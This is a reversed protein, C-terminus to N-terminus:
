DSKRGTTAWIQLDDVATGVTSATPFEMVIAMANMGAFFDTMTFDVSGDDNAMDITSNFGNLDFFFPDDRLGAYGSVLGADLVTDVAGEIDGTSGPVNKMQVGWAGANNQGFRVEIDIESGNELDGDNDIHVMYLVDEDYVPSGGGAILGNYTLAVVISDATHWAYLDAIDAAPDAMTGPAEAHDAAFAPVAALGLAGAALGALLTNRSTKM